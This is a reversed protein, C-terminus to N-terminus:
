KSVIKSNLSNQCDVFLEKILSEISLNYFDEKKKWGSIVEFFYEQVYQAIKHGYPGHGDLIVYVEMDSDILIFFKDQNPCDIKYGKSYCIALSKDKFSSNEITEKQQPNLTIFQNKTYRDATFILINDESNFLSNNFNYEYFLNNQLKISNLTNSRRTKPKTSSIVKEERTSCGCSAGM